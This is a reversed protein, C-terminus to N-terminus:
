NVVYNASLRQTLPIRIILVYLANLQTWVDFVFHCQVAVLIAPAMQFTTVMIVVM